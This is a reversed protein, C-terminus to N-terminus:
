CRDKMSSILERLVKGTILDCAEQVIQRLQDYTRQRGAALDLYCSEIYDKM